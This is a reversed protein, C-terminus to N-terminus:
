SAQQQDRWRQEQNIGAGERAPQVVEIEVAMYEGPLNTVFVHGRYVGAVADGPVDLAVAVPLSSGPPAIDIEGPEFRWADGPIT